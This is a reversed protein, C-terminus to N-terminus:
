GSSISPDFSMPPYGGRSIGTQGCFVKMKFSKVVKM